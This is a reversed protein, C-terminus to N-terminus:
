HTILFLMRVSVFGVGTVNSKLDFGKKHNALVLQSPITRLNVFPYHLLTHICKMNPLFGLLDTSM